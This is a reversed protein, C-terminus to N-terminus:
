YNWEEYLKSFLTALTILDQKNHEVIAVLPGVNGTQQYTQYFEPVLAGPINIGRGINLYEEVTELRCNRLKHRLARRAFHLLDFHPNDIQHDMGYYALRQQIYPIDFSRGNYSILSCDRHIKNAFAWIAAPEDSISRMLLQSSHVNKKIITAIGILVIPRESLGLTEIDVIAFDEAKNLGALYHILPHSKPFRKWLYSQLKEIQKKEILGMYESATKKWVPHNELDKISFFGENKLKLERKPGIGYLIKLNSLLNKKCENSDMEEFESKSIRKISYFDGHDNSIVKGPIAQELSKKKFKKMLQKKLMQANKHEIQMLWWQNERTKTKKILENKTVISYERKSMTRYSLNEAAKQFSFREISFSSFNNRSNNKALFRNNISNNPDFGSTIFKSLLLNGCKKCLRSKLYQSKSHHTGCNKCAYVIPV